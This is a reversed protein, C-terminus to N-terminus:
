GPAGPTDDAGTADDDLQALAAEHSMSLSGSLAVANLKAHVYPAVSAAMRDRREHETRPDRMIRLMYDLPTEGSAEVAEILKATKKNRVGAKRGAGQRKGGRQISQNSKKQNKKM